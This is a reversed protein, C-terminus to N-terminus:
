ASYNKLSSKANLMGTADGCGRIEKRQHSDCWRVVHLVGNHSLYTIRRLNFLASKGQSSALSLLKDQDVYWILAHSDILVRIGHVGPFGELPANFDPAMYKVTGKLTRPKRLIQEQSNQEEHAL